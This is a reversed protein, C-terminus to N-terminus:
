HGMRVLTRINEKATADDPALELVRAWLRRANAYDKQYYYATGKGNLAPVMDRELQLARDFATHAESFRSLEALVTGHNNYGRPDDPNLATYRRFAAEAENLKSLAYAAHGLERQVAADKPDLEAAKRWAEYAEEGLRLRKAAQGRGKWGAASAPDLECVRRYAAAADAWRGEKAAAEGDELRLKLVQTRAAKHAEIGDAIWLAPRAPKGEGAYFAPDTSSLELTREWEQLAQARWGKAYFQAALAQRPTPDAPDLALSRQFAAIAEEPKGQQLLYLGLDYQSVKRQGGGCGALWAAALIVCAGRRLNM